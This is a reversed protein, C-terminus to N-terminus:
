EGMKKERIRKSAEMLEQFADNDQAIKRICNRCRHLLTCLFWSAGYPNKESYHEVEGCDGCKFRKATEKVPKYVKPNM